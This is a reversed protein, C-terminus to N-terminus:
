TSGLYTSENRVLCSLVCMDRGKREGAEHGVAAAVKWAGELWWDAVRQGCLCGGAM